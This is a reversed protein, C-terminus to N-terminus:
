PMVQTRAEEPSRPVLAKLQGAFRTAAALDAEAVAAPASSVAAGLRPWKKEMYDLARCTSGSRVFFDHKGELRNRLIVPEDASKAVSCRLIDTNDVEVIEFEFCARHEAGIYEAVVNAMWALMGDRDRRPLRGGGPALGEAGGDDGVGILPDGGRSNAFSCLERAIKEKM